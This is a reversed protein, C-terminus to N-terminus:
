PKPQPKAEKPKPKTSKQNEHGYKSSKSQKRTIKSEDTGISTRSCQIIAHTPNVEGGVMLMDHFAEEYVGDQRLNRFRSGGLGVDWYTLLIRFSQHLKFLRRGTM